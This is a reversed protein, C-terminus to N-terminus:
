LKSAKKIICKIECARLPRKKTGRIRPSKMAVEKLKLIFQEAMREAIAFELMLGWFDFKNM